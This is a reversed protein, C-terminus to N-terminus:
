KPDTLESFLGKNFSGGVESVRVKTDGASSVTCTFFPRAGTAGFYKGCETCM